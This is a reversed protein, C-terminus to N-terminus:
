WMKLTLIHIVNKKNIKRANIGYTKMLIYFM